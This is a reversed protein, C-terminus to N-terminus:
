ETYEGKYIETGMIERAKSTRVSDTTLLKVCSNFEFSKERIPVKKSPPIHESKMENVTKLDRQYSPSKRLNNVKLGNSIRGSVQSQKPQPRSSVDREALNSNKSSPAVSKSRIKLVKQSEGLM